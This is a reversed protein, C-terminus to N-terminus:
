EAWVVTEVDRSSIRGPFTYSGRTVKVKKGKKISNIIDEFLADKPFCAPFIKIVAEEVLHKTRFFHIPVLIETQGDARLAGTLLMTGVKGKGAWPREWFEGTLTLIENTEACIHFSFVRSDKELAIRSATSNDIKNYSIIDFKTQAM